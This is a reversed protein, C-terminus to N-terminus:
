PCAQTSERVFELLVPSFSLFVFLRKLQAAASTGQASASIEGRLECSAARLSSRPGRLSRQDQRVKHFSRTSRKCPSSGPSMRRPGRLHSKHNEGCFFCFVVFFFMLLPGYPTPGLPGKPKGSFLFLFSCRMLLPAQLM